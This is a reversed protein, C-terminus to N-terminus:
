HQLCARWEALIEEEGSVMDTMKLQLQMENGAKERVYAAIRDDALVQLSVKGPEQKELLLNGEKDLVLYAGQKEEDNVNGTFHINGQADAIFDDYRDYHNWVSSDQAVVLPQALTGDENMVAIECNRGGDQSFNNTALVCGTGETSPGAKAFTKSAISEDLTEVPFAKVEGADNLLYLTEGELRDADKEGYCCLRGWMSGSLMEGGIFYEYLREKNEVPLVVKSVCTYPDLTNDQWSFTANHVQEEWLEETVTSSNQGNGAPVTTDVAGESRNGCGMGGLALVMCLIWIAVRKVTTM